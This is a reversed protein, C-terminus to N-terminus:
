LIQKIDKGLFAAKKDRYFYLAVMFYIYSSTFEFVEGSTRYYDISKNQPLIFYKLIYFVCWSLFFFIGITVPAVPIRMNKNKVQHPKFHYFFLPICILFIVSFIRYLINIDLFREFIIKKAGNGKMSDFTTLNHINFEHQVNIESISEPTHFNFIRQGWSIEEGFGFFFVLSLLLLFLNRTKLFIIFFMVSVILLFFATSYELLHDEEGMSIIRKDNCYIFISYSACIVLIISIIYLKLFRIERFYNKVYSM